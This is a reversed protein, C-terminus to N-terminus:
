SNSLLLGRLFMTDEFLHCKSNNVHRGVLRHAWMDTYIHRHRSSWGGTQTGRHSPNAARSIKGPIEWINPEAPKLHGRIPGSPLAKCPRGDELLGTQGQKGPSLLIALLLALVHLAGQPKFSANQCRQQMKNVFALWLGLDSELVLSISKMKLVSRGCWFILYDLEKTEMWFCSSFSDERLASNKIVPLSGQPLHIENYVRSRPGKPWKGINGWYTFNGFLHPRARRQLLAWPSGSKIWGLKIASPFGVKLVCFDICKLEM